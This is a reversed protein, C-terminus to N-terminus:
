PQDEPRSSPSKGTPSQEAAQKARLAAAQAVLKRRQAAVDEMTQSAGDDGPLPLAASDSLALDAGAAAALTEAQERTASFCSPDDLSGIRAIIPYLKALRQHATKEARAARLDEDLAAAWSEDARVAPLDAEARGATESLKGCRAEPDAELIALGRALDEAALAFECARRHAAAQRVDASFAQQDASKRSIHARQRRLGALAPDCGAPLARALAMAAETRKLDARCSQADAASEKVAAELRALRAAYGAAQERRRRLAAL